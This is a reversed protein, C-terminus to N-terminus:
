GRCGDRRRTPWECYVSAFGPAAVRFKEEHKIHQNVAVTLKRAAEAVLGGEDIAKGLETQIEEHDKLLAQPIKIEMKLGVKRNNTWKLLNIFSNENNIMGAIGRLQDAIRISTEGKSIFLDAGASHAAQQKPDMPSFLVVSFSSSCAAKLKGIATAPETPLLDWDVLLLDLNTKPAQFITSTWNNAEGVVKMNMDSVLLRLASREDPHTNALFVNVMVIDYGSDSHCADAM